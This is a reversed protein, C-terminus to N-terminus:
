FTISALLPVPRTSNWIEHFDAGVASGHMPHSQPPPGDSGPDTAFLATAHTRQPATPKDSCGVVGVSILVFIPVFMRLM